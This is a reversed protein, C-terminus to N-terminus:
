KPIIKGLIKRAVVINQDLEVINVIGHWALVQDLFDAFKATHPLWAM